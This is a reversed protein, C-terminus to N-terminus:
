FVDEDDEPIASSLSSLESEDLSSYSEEARPADAERLGAGATSFGCKLVCILVGFPVGALSSFGAGFGRAGLAFGAGGAAAGSGGNPVGKLVGKPVFLFFSFLVSCVSLFKDEKPSLSVWACARFAGAKERLAAAGAAM